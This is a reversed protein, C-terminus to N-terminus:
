GPGITECCRYIVTGLYYKVAGCTAINTCGIFLNHTTGSYTHYPLAVHVVNTLVPCLIDHAYPPVLWM